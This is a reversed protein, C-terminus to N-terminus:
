NKIILNKIIRSRQRNQPLMRWVALYLVRKPNKAFLDGLNRAKMGGPYGSYHYYTKNKLKSGTFKVKSINTIEVRDTPMINPQFTAKQKGRLLVAIHSALRGVSQGSADITHTM